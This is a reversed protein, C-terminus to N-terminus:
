ISKSQIIQMFRKHIDGTYSLSYGLKKSETTPQFGLMNDLKSQNKQCMGDM